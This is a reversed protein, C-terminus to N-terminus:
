ADPRAHKAVWSAVAARAQAHTEVPLHRLPIALDRSRRRRVVIQFPSDREVGVVDESRVRRRWWAEVPGYDLAAESIELVPRNRNRVAAVLMAGYIAVVGAPLLVLWDWGPRRLYSGVVFASLVAPAAAALVDRLWRERPLRVAFCPERM